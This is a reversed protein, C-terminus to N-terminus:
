ELTEILHQQNTCICLDGAIELSQKVIDRPSLETHRLLAMAASQAYAGGSGIAALGNEPELVDGNGTLVLTHDRDAVILMAELRRLVRDTRWDRTLEVAARMLNGQHKELKGEFREQLTFADATAGAFGALIKDHYLRRIKRATGKIIINGLTVQGDGGLAVQNGRRVCVITTGHFQEM